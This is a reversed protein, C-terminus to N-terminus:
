YDWWPLSSQGVNWDQSVAVLANADNISWGGDETALWNSVTGNTNRWLIDERGDGNFDTSM